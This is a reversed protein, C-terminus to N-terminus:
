VRWRQPNLEGLNLGVIRIAKNVIRHMQRESYACRQMYEYPVVSRGSWFRTRIVTQESESLRDLMDEVASIERQLRKAYESQLLLAKHATPDKAKLNADLIEMEWENILRCSTPYQRIITQIKSWSERSIRM